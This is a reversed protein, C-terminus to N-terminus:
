RLSKQCRRQSRGRLRFAEETEGGLRLWEQGCHRIRRIPRDIHGPAVFRIWWVLRETSKPKFRAEIRDLRDNINM